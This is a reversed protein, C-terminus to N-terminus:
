KDEPEKDTKSTRNKDASEKVMDTLKEFSVRYGMVNKTFGPSLLLIVVIAIVLVLVIAFFIIPAKKEFKSDKM